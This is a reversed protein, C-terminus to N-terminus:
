KLYFGGGKIATTEKKLPLNDFVTLEGKKM